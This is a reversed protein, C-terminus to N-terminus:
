RVACDSQVRQSEHESGHMNVILVNGLWLETKIAIMFHLQEVLSEKKELQV